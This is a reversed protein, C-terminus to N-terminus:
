HCRDAWWQFNPDTTPPRYSARREIKSLVLKVREISAARTETWKRLLQSTSILRTPQGVKKLFLSRAKRDDTALDFGRAVAIALSMAEGDDLVAAFDVYLLEERPSQIECVGLSGERILPHLDILEKPNHPDESRLFVSEKKVIECILSPKGRVHVIDPLEDTALLNILVCADIIQGQSVV